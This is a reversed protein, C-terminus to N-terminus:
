MGLSRLAGAIRQCADTASLGYKAGLSSYSQQSLCVAVGMDRAAKSALAKYLETYTQMEILVSEASTVCGSFLPHPLYPHSPLPSRHTFGVQM